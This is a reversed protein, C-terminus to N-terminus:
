IKIPGTMLQQIQNFYIYNGGPTEFHEDMQFM